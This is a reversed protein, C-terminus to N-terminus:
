SAVLVKKWSPPWAAWWALMSMGAGQKPCSNAGLETANASTWLM